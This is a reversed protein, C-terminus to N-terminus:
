DNGYGLKPYWNSQRGAATSAISEIRLICQWRKGLYVWTATENMDQTTRKGGKWPVVCQKVRYTMVATMETPIMVEVDSLSFSTM